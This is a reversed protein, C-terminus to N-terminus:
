HFNCKEKEKKIIQFIDGVPLKDTIQQLCSNNNLSETERITEFYKAM